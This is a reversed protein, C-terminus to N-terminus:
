SLPLRYVKMWQQKDMSMGLAHRHDATEIDHKIQRQVRPDIESWHLVLYEVMESVAYTQRGLTYRFAYLVLDDQTM